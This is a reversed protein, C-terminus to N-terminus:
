VTTKLAIALLLCTGLVVLSLGALGLTLLRRRRRLAGSAEALTKLSSRRRHKM